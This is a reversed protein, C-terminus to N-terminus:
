EGDITYATDRQRRGEYIEPAGKERDNVFLGRVHFQNREM